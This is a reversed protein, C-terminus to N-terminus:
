WMAGGICSFIEPHSYNRLNKPYRPCSASIMCPPPDRALQNHIVQQFGSLPKKIVPGTSDDFYLNERIM